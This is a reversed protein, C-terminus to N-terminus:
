DRPARREWVSPTGPQAPEAPAAYARFGPWGAKQPVFNHDLSKRGRRNGPPKKRREAGLAAAPLGGGGLRIGPTGRSERALLQRAPLHLSTLGRCGPPKPPHHHGIRIRNEEERNEEERSFRPNGPPANWGVAGSGGKAKLLANSANPGETRRASGRQRSKAQRWLRLDNLVKAKRGTESFLCTGQASEPWWQMKLGQM